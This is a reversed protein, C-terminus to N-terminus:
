KMKLAQIKHIEVNLLAQAARILEDKVKDNGCGQAVILVGEIKPSKTSVIVPSQGALVASDKTDYSITERQGGASDTESVTENKDAYDRAIITEEGQALTILVEVKGAGEVMSLIKKLRTELDEAYGASSETTQEYVPLPTPETTPKKTFFSLAICVIGASLLLVVYITTKHKKFFGPTDDKDM